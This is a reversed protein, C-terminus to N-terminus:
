GMQFFISFSFATFSGRLRYAALHIHLFLFTLHITTEHDVHGGAAAGRFAAPQCSSHMASLRSPVRCIFRHMLSCGWVLGSMAANTGQAFFNWANLGSQFTFRTLSVSKFPQNFVYTKILMTGLPNLMQGAVGLVSRKYRAVIDRRM